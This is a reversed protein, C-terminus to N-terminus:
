LKSKYFDVALDFVGSLGFSVHKKSLIWEHAM